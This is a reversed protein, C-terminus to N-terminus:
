FRAVEDTSTKVAAVPSSNCAAAAHKSVSMFIEALRKICLRCEKCSEETRYACM